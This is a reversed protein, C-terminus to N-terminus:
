PALLGKAAAAGLGAAAFAAAFFIGNWPMWGVSDIRKRKLRRRDAVLALIALLLCALALWAIEEADSAFRFHDTVAQMAGAMHHCAAGAAIAVRLSAGAGAQGLAPAM